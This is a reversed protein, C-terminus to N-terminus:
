NLVLGRGIRTSTSQWIHEWHDRLIRSGSMDELWTWEVKTFHALEALDFKGTCNSVKFQNTLGAPNSHATPGRGIRLTRGSEAIGAGAQCPMRVFDYGGASFQTKPRWIEFEESWGYYDATARFTWLTRARQGEPWSLVLRVRDDAREIM